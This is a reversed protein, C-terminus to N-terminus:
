YGVTSYRSSIGGCHTTSAKGLEYCKEMLNENSFFHVSAGIDLALTNQPVNARTMGKRTKTLVQDKGRDATVGLVYRNPDADYM